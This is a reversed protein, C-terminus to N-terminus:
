LGGAALFIQGGPAMERITVGSLRAAAHDPTWEEVAHHRYPGRSEGPHRALYMSSNGPLDIEIRKEV